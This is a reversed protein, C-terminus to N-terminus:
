TKTKWSSNTSSVRTVTGAFLNNHVNDNDNDNDNDKDNLQGEYRDRCSNTTFMTLICKGKSTDERMYRNRLLLDNHVHVPCFALFTVVKGLLDNVRKGVM